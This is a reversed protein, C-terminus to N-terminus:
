KANDRHAQAIAKAQALAKDHNILGSLREIGKGREAPLYCVEFGATPVKPAWISYSSGDPLRAIYACGFGPGEQWQLLHTM